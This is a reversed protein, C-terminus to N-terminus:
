EPWADTRIGVVVSFTLTSIDIDDESQVTPTASTLTMDIVEHYPLNSSTFQRNYDNLLWIAKARYEKHSDSNQGRNTAIALRLTGNFENPWFSGDSPVLHKRDSGLSFQVECRPTTLTDTGGQVFATVGESQLVSQVALDLYSEFQYLIAISAAPM